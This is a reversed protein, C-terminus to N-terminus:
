VIDPPHAETELYVSPIFFSIEINHISLDVPVDPLRGQESFYAQSLATLIESLDKASTNKNEMQARVINDLQAFLVTEEEDSICYYIIKEGAIEKKVIDYMQGRYLFEKGEREWDPEESTDFVIKHLEGAPIEKKIQQKIEQRIRYRLIKYVPIYGFFSIGFFLLLVSSITKKM